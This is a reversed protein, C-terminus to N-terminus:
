VLEYISAIQITISPKSTFVKVIPVCDAGADGTTSVDIQYKNTLGGTWTSTGDATLTTGTALPNLCTTRSPSPASGAHNATEKNTGDQYDIVVWIDKDTLASNSTIYFRLTDSALVSLEAFRENPFEFWLPTYISADSNTVIKYSIKAGSDAFAPDENRFIVSDDDVDGGIATLGYQYEAAASSNSCRRTLVRQHMSKFTENARVATASLMCLDFEVNIKDDTTITGGVNGILNGTVASLDVANFRMKTGGNRFGTSSLNNIGASATTVVGKNVTIDTGDALIYASANDLAIESDNITVPVQGLIQLLGANVVTLKCDNISQAGGDNRLVLNDISSFEMGFANLSGDVTVDAATGSATEEKGRTAEVTRYADINADSVCILNIGPLLDAVSISISVALSDFSHLDSVRIDDASAPPTTASLADNITNYYGTAGLATFTGTQASAYRGGDGTATGGSKVYFFAM